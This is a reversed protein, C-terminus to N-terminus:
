GELEKRLSLVEDKIRSVTAEWDIDEKVGPYFIAATVTKGWRQPAGSHPRYAFDYYLLNNDWDINTININSKLLRARWSLEDM